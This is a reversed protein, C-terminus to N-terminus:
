NNPIKIIFFHVFNLRVDKPVQFYYQIIFVTFINLKGGRLCLKTVIQSFREKSIVDAIIYDFVILAKRKLGPKYKNISRISM